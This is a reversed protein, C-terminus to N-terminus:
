WTRRECRMRHLSITVVRGQVVPVHLQYNGYRCGARQAHGEARAHAIKKDPLSMEPISSFPELSTTGVQRPALPGMPVEVYEVKPPENVPPAAEMGYGGGGYGGGGYGGYAGVSHQADEYSLM